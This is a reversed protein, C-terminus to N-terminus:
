KIFQEVAKQTRFGNSWTAIYRRLLIRPVQKYDWGTYPNDNETKGERAAEKGEEFISDIKKQSVSPM